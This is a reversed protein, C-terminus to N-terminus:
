GLLCGIKSMDLMPFNQGFNVRTKSSKKPLIYKTISSFKDLLNQLIRM